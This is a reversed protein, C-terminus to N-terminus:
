FKQRKERQRVASLEPSSGAPIIPLIIASPHKQDHLVMQHAVLGKSGFSNLAAINLNRDFRPFNSSSVEVRIRHGTAFAYSTVGANVEIRYPINKKVFVPRNLSLRYRLRQIGDCILLARGDQGVDVLKVTFDTDNASTAVYLVARVPGTVEVDHALPASTYVLVDARREISAQDLPGLPTLRPDCCTAGGGTPVPDAPNYIFSDSPENRVSSWKLSGDGIATRAHGGSALFLPTYRTRALPWENEQRWVDPGMVFIHLISHPRDLRETGPKLWEDFWALQKSRTHSMALPGFNCTSFRWGPNHAWPGIWTEITQGSQSVRSFADLDGEAYADFWGGFSLVPIPMHQLRRAISLSQWFRDYSPHMLIERWRPLETGISALDATELPLHFLGPGFNRPLSSALRFNQDLWILRHSLQLAGGPSYSRDLYEDDGSNMPSITVLHPNNEVAAWWQAMGLYSSGAMAVRGDSWPQAAIWDITDSGDPGEQSIAAFKGESGFRGRVDQIVVSYGHRTFYLYSRMGPSKRSYPTRILIAPRRESGPPLYVDTALHVGDRMPVMASEYDAWDRSHQWADSPLAALAYVTALALALRCCGMHKFTQM